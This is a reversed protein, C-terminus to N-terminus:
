NYNCWTWNPTMTLTWRPSMAIPSHHVSANVVGEEVGGFAIIRIRSDDHDHTFCVRLMKSLTELDPLEDLKTVHDYAPIKATSTKLVSSKRVLQCVLSLCGGGKVFFDRNEEVKGLLGEEDPGEEAYSQDWSCL